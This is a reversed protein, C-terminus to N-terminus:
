NSARRPEYSSRFSFSPQQNMVQLRLRDHYLGSKSIHILRISSLLVHGALSSLTESCQFIRAKNEVQPIDADLCFATCRSVAPFIM